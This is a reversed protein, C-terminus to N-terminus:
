GPFLLGTDNAEDILEIGGGEFGAIAWRKLAPFL